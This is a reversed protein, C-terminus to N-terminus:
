ENEGNRYKDIICLSYQLGKAWKEDHKTEEDVIQRIEDTIKDLPICNAIASAITGQFNKVAQKAFDFDSDKIGEILSEDLNIVIQM